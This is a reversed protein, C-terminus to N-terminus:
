NISGAKVIKFWNCNAPSGDTGGNSAQFRGIYIGPMMDQLEIYQKGAGVHCRRVLRGGADFLSFVGLCPAEVYFGSYVPNPYLRIDLKPSPPASAADEWISLADSTFDPGGGCQQGM